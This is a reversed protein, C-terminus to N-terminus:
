AVAMKVKSKKFMHASINRHCSGRGWHLTTAMCLGACEYSTTTSTACSLRAFSSARSAVLVHLRGNGLKGCMNEVGEHRDEM